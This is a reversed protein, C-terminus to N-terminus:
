YSQYETSELWNEAMVAFDLLNVIGDKNYDLRRAALAKTVNGVIKVCDSGKIGTGDFLAGTLNLVMMQGKELEDGPSILQEVIDWRRFKLTLDIYGDPETEMCECDDVNTMPSTVDGYSSRIPSVEALRVTAVDVSNVDFDESGM